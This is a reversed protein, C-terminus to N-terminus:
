GFLEKAEIKNRREVALEFTRNNVSKMIEDPISSIVEFYAKHALYFNVEHVSPVVVGHNVLLRENQVFSDVIKLQGYQHLTLGKFKLTDSNVSELVKVMNQPDDGLCKYVTSVFMKAAKQATKLKSDKYDRYTLTQSVKENDWYRLTDWFHFRKDDEKARYFIQRVTDSNTSKMSRFLENENLDVYQVKTLAYAWLAQLNAFIYAVKDDVDRPIHKKLHDDRLQIEHRYVPVKSAEDYGNIIWKSLILAKKEPYHVLQKLKDYIRFMFANKGFSITEINRKMSARFMDVDGSAIENKKFNTQFRCTDFFDYAVGWVDSALHVESINDITSGLAKDVFKQAIEYARKYGVTFLFSQRYEILIQPRDSGFAINGIKIYLDDNSVIYKYAQNGQAHIRFRGLALLESVVFRENNAFGKVNQADDKLVDLLDCFNQFKGNFDSESVSKHTTKLTDIHQSLIVPEFFVKM